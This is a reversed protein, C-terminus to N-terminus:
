CIYSSFVYILSCLSSFRFGFKYYRGIHETLRFFLLKAVCMQTGRGQLLKCLGGYGAERGGRCVYVVERVVGGVWINSWAVTEVAWNVKRQKESPKYPVGKYVLRGHRHTHTHYPLLPTM